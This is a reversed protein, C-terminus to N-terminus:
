RQMWSMKAFSSHGELFPEALATRFFQILPGVSLAIIVTGIGLEGGAAFGAALCFMDAGIRCYKFKGVKRDALILAVADYTSVGMDATYYFGASLALLLLAAGFCGIRVAFGPAANVNGLMGYVADAVVGYIALNLLTSVGVLSKKMKWAFALLIVCMVNAVMTFSTHFIEAMGTLLVCYPDVGFDAYRFIGVSVATVFIGVFAMIIRKSKRNM